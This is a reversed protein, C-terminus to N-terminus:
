VADPEVLVRGHQTKINLRKAESILFEYRAKAAEELYIAYDILKPENVNDFFDRAIRIQEVADEIALLLQEEQKHSDMGTILYELIKEKDM